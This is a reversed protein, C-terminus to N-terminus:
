MLAYEKVINIDVHNGDDIQASFDNAWKRYEAM